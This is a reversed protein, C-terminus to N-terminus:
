EEPNATFNVNTVSVTSTIVQSPPTFRHRKASVTITYQSGAELAGFSYTGFTGTQVVRPVTITGGTLTVIANRIGAGGATLITGSISILPPRESIGWSATLDNLGVTTVLNNGASVTSSVVVPSGATSRWARYNFESGNIDSNDYNLALTSTMSGTQQIDWSFSASTAPPLGALTMDRATVAVDAPGGPVSSASIQVRAFHNDGVLFSYAPNSDTFRRVLTGRVYGSSASGSRVADGSLHILRNSGTDIVTSLINLTGNLTIDGGAITITNEFGMFKNSFEVLSRSPNIEPGTTLNGADSYIMKQGGTGLDFVPATDFSALGSFQVTSPAADGLGLTLRNANIIHATEVEITRARIGTVGPDLTLSVAKIHFINVPGSFAGAGSYTINNVPPAISVEPAFIVDSAPKVKFTGNNVFTDGTMFFAFDGIDLTAGAGINVNRFNTQSGPSTLKVTHPGSTADIAISAGAWAACTFFGTGPTAANGFRITTATPSLQGMETLPMIRGSFDPLNENPVPNPTQVVFSGATGSGSMDYCPAFNGAICVTTTGGTQRYSNGPFGGARMAGSVNLGGGDVTIVGGFNAGRLADTSATGVNYVGASIQLRGTVLADGTQAAVTYNPNNLWFGATLPITYSATPFTRHNGSFTGSIKFTGNTLSLYGSAATDTANGQVTFNLVSLTLTSATTTGKNVTITRINTQSGGGGFTNNSAGTFILGAGAQNSNTSLDLIGNNTLNGGVTITHTTVTGSTPTSLIGLGSVTLDGNVTLSRATAPDFTLVGSNFSVDPGVTLNAVTVATDIVVESGVSITVDDGAGPVVGGVWTSPSSWLGGPATSSIATLSNRTTERIGTDVAPEQAYLGIAFFSVTLVISVVLKLGKM